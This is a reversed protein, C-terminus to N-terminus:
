TLPKTTGAYTPLPDFIVGGTAPDVTYTGEGPITVSTKFTGDAPDKLKVSAPDLPVTVGGAVGPTDNSLTPVTVNTDSPTTASDNTATPAVPTVTIAITSTGTVGSQDKVQYTIPTAPGTFTPLPDFSVKGTIPDVTYTGEGPITVTKQYTGTVPDKLAVSTPDLPAGGTGPADNVLPDVTINTNQPTTGTDPAIKPAGIVTPTITATVPTGNQDKVQYTIPTGTGTFGPEPTFTIKGTVPDVTYTGEGPITVTKGYTGTVPDKLLVTTPDLPVGTGPTDNALPDFTVPQGQATTPTDNSAVPTVPTITVTVTSTTPVDQCNKVRYTLATAKGTFQ